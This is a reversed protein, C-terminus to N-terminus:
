AGGMNRILDNQMDTDLDTFYVNWGCLRVQLNRYKEPEKQARRLTEPDVINIHVAFGGRAFYTKLLGIAARLGEEGSVASPHLHLDLVAGNPTATYDLGTVSLILATVGNRDMGASASLNKSLPEGAGRGDASAGLYKGYLVTWDISFLGMRYVGGRANPKGNIYGALTLEIQRALTDAEAAHNGFKPYARMTMRLTEAGRWNDALVRRLETLSVIGDEFVGKKIAILSDVVTALGFVCISSNNYKAGGAYIDKGARMCSEFTASLVPACIMNPYEKEIAGIEDMAQVCWTRLQSMVAGYFADFDAFDEGFDEGIAVDSHFRKGRGLVSEVAMPLNLRGNLTCPLEKGAASAEYCGILAFDAADEPEIGVGMLAKQIVEGNTFVFSNNGSRISRLIMDYAKDTLREANKVHIKPDPVNLRIYEELFLYTLDNPNECLALPLNSVIHRSTWKFLFYRILGRVDSESCNGDALDRKYYPYLLKDVSGLSRLSNGQTLYQAQYYIFYLQMAEALTQPSRHLLANLNKAAFAANESPTFFAIRQLRGLYILIGEYAYKVSLYFSRQVGPLGPSQLLREAWGLIGPIGRHFVTRWDPMTHGFDCDALFAGEQQPAAFRVPPKHRRYEEDRLHFPAASEDAMDAFIDAPNVALPVHSFYFRIAKGYGLAKDSEGDYIRRLDDSLRRTAEPDASHFFREYQDEMAGRSQAFDTIKM